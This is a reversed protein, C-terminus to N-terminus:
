NSPTLAWCTRFQDFHTDEGAFSLQEVSVIGPADKYETPVLFYSPYNASELMIHTRSGNIAPQIAWSAWSRKSIDAEDKTIFLLKKAKPDFSLYLASSKHYISCVRNRKSGNLDEKIIFVSDLTLKIEFMTSSPTNRTNYRLYMDPFMASEFRVELETTITEFPIVPILDDNNFFLTTKSVGSIDSLVKQVLVKNTDTDLLQFVMGQVSESCNGAPVTYDIAQVNKPTSFSLTVASKRIDYAGTPLKDVYVGSADIAFNPQMGNLTNYKAIYTPTGVCIGNSDKVVIGNKEIIRIAAYAGGCSTRITSNYRYVSPLIRVASVLIGKCNSPLEKRVIGYCREMNTQQGTLDTSTNAKNHVDNFVSRIATVSLASDAASPALMRTASKIQEIVDPDVSGDPKIPAWTGTPQCAQFPFADRVFQAAIENNQVGSYANTVSTYTDKDNYISQLCQIDADSAANKPDITKSLNLTTKSSIMYAGTTPNQSLTDCPGGGSRGFMVRQANRMVDMLRRNYVESQEGPLKLPLNLGRANESYPRLFAEIEDIARETLGTEAKTSQIGSPLIFDSYRLIKRNTEGNVPNDPGLDGKVPDGGMRKFIESLCKDTTGEECASRTGRDIGNQNSFLIGTPCKQLDEAYEPDRFYGPIQVHFKFKNSKHDISWLWFQSAILPVGALNPTNPKPQVIKQSTEFLGNRSYYERLKKELTISTDTIETDGVKVIYREGSDRRRMQLEKVDTGSELQILIGRYNAGDMNNGFQSYVGQIDEDSLLKDNTRKIYEFWNRINPAQTFVTQNGETAQSYFTKPVKIGYCWVGKAEKARRVGRGQGKVLNKDAGSGEDFDDFQYITYAAGDDAFGAPLVQAGANYAAQLQDLTAVTAGLRKCYQQAEEFTGSFDAFFVEEQGRPRHPFEQYVTFELVDDPKSKPFEISQAQGAEIVQQAVLGSSGLRYYVVTNGTGTPTVIRVRLPQEGGASVLYACTPDQQCAVCKGLLDTPTLGDETVTRSTAKFGGNTGYEQCALQQSARRCADEQGAVFFYGDACSGASPKYATPRGLPTAAKQRKRDRDSLFLGGIFNTLKDKLSESIGLVSRNAEQTYTTGAKLCVGCTAALTGDNLASCLRDRNKKVSGGTGDAFANVRECKRVDDALGGTLPISEEVYSKTRGFFTYPQSMDPGAGSPSMTYGVIPRFGKVIGMDQPSGLVPLVDRLDSYPREPVTPEVMSTTLAQQLMTNFSSPGSNIKNLENVAPELLMGATRNNASRGEEVYKQFTVPDMSPPPVDAESPPLVPCGASSGQFPEAIKQNVWPGVFTLVAVLLLTALVIYLLNM